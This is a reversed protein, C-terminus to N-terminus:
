HTPRREREWKSILNPGYPWSLRSSNRQLFLCVSHSTATFSSTHRRFIKMIIGLPFSSLLLSLSLAKSQLITLLLSFFPSFVCCQVFFGLLCISFFFPFFAGLSLIVVM